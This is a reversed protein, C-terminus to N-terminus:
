NDELCFPGQKPTFCVYKEPSECPELLDRYKRPDCMDLEGIKSGYDLDRELLPWRDRVRRKSSPHARHDTAKSDSSAGISSNSVPTAAVLGARRWVVHQVSPPLVAIDSRPMVDTVTILGHESRDFTAATDIPEYRNPASEDTGVVVRGSSGACGALLLFFSISLLQIM